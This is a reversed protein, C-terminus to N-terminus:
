SFFFIFFRFTFHGVRKSGQNRKPVARPSTNRTYKIYKGLNTGSIGHLSRILPCVGFMSVTSGLQHTSISTLHEELEVGGSDLYFQSGQGCRDGWPEAPANWGAKQLYNCRNVGYETSQVGSHSLTLFDTNDHGCVDRLKSTLPSAPTVRNSVDPM